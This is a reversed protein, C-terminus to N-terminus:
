GYNLLDENLTVRVIENHPDLKMKVMRYYGLSVFSTAGDREIVLRVQYSNGVDLQHYLHGTPDKISIDPISLPKEFRDLGRKAQADLTSIDAGPTGHYVSELTVGNMLSEDGVASGEERGSDSSMGLVVIVNAVRQFDVDIRWDDTINAGLELVVNPDQVGKRPFHTRLARTTPTVFMDIDVGDYLTPFEEIAEWINPHESFRWRRFRKVGTLPCITDISLDSKDYASDQAHEVVRQVLSAQDEGEPDNHFLAEDITFSAADVRMSVASSNSVNPAEFRCHLVEVTNAPVDMEIVHRVWKDKVHQGDIRTFKVEKAESYLNRWDFTGWDGKNTGSVASAYDYGTLARPESPTSGYWPFRAMVLGTNRYNPAWGTEGDPVKVWAVFACKMGQDGGDVVVDQFMFLNISQQLHDPLPLGNPYTTYKVNSIEISRTGTLYDDTNVRIRDGLADGPPFYDLFWATTLNLWHDDGKTGEEFEPNNLYNTRNAKGFFRRTFYWGLGRCRFTISDSDMTVRTAVVWGLLQTGRWVQFECPHYLTALLYNEATMEVKFDFSDHENLERSYDGMEFDAFEKLPTPSAPNYFAIIRYPRQVGTPYNSPNYVPELVTATATGEGLASGLRIYQSPSYADDGSGDAALKNGTPTLYIIKDNHLFTTRSSSRQVLGNTQRIPLPTGSQILVGGM